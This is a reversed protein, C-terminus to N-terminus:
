VVQGSPLRVELKAMVVKPGGRRKGGLVIAFPENRAPSRPEFAIVGGRRLRALKERAPLKRFAPAGGRLMPFRRALEADPTAGEKSRVNSAMWGEGDVM